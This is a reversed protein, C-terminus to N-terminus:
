KIMWRRFTSPSLVKGQLTLVVPDLYIWLQTRQHFHNCWKILHIDIGCFILCQKQLAWVLNRLSLFALNNLTRSYFRGPDIEEKQFIMHALRVPSWPPAAPQKNAPQYKHPQVSSCRATRGQLWKPIESNMKQRLALVCLVYQLLQPKTWAAFTSLTGFCLCVLFCKYTYKIYLNQLM